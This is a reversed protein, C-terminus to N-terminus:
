QRLLDDLLERLKAPDLPGVWKRHIRGDQTIFFTEPVGTMGYEISVSGDLDRGNPYTVGTRRLFALADPETDQVSVGLFAVRDGYARYAQELAPMEQACPVCWSAWFNLLVPKGRLDALRLEGGTLLPVTFDPAPRPAVAVSGFPGDRRALGILLLTLFAAVLLGAALAGIRLPWPSASTQEGSYSSM